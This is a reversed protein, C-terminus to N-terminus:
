DLKLIETGDVDNEAMYCTIARMTYGDIIEKSSGAKLRIGYPLYALWTDSSINRERRLAAGAVAVVTSNYNDNTSITQQMGTSGITLVATIIHSPDLSAFGYSKVLSKGSSSLDWPDYITYDDGVKDVIVVWHEQHGANPSQDLQVIVPKGANLYEDILSLPAEVDMCTILNDQYIDPYISNILRVILNAGSFGAVARYKENLEGPNVNHGYKTCVMAVDALLCGYDGITKTDSMGIINNKWAPARQSYHIM